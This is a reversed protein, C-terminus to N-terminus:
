YKTREKKAEAEKIHRLIEDKHKALMEVMGGGNEGGNITITPSYNVSTGSSVKNLNTTAGGGQPTLGLSSQQAQQMQQAQQAISVNGNIGIASGISSAVDKIAQIPKYAMAKIGEWLSNMMSAGADYMMSPINFIWDVFSRFLGKVTEWLNRFFDVIKSWNNYILVVPNLDWLYYKLTKIATSFIGKVVNWVKVFYPKLTDWNRYILYVAAAIALVSVLIPNLAFVYNVAIMITRFATMVFNLGKWVTTMVSIAASGIKFIGGLALLGVGVAAIVKVVGQNEQAFHQISELVPTITEFISSIAPLLTNGIAAAAQAFNDKLTSLKGNVTQSQAEMGGAFKTQGIGILYKEIEKSNKGVTTTVGQFTFAVRDGQSKAKIGFEKLREFEGTAADAVAEIMQNLDKGMASATNGYATLAEQSPDLGMNKLKLFSNLVETMEYPTQTAFSQITKFAADAAVQNGQFATKLAVQQSELDAAAKVAYGLAGVIVGGTLLATNGMSDLRQQTQQTGREFRSLATQSAQSAQQVVRTMNDVASLVVTAQLIKQLSM